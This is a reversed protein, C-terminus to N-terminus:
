NQPNEPEAQAFLSGATQRKKLIRPFAVAFVIVAIAIAMFVAAFGHVAM